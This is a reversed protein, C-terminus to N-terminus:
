IDPVDKKSIRLAPQQEAVAKKSLMQFHKASTTPGAKGKELAMTFGGKTTNHHGTKVPPRTEM